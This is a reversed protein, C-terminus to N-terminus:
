TGKELATRLAFNVQIIEQLKVTIDDENSGAGDDVPVSPRICVPPVVISNLILREPRGKTSEMWLLECDEDSIYKFLRQVVLPSLDDQARSLAGELERNCMKAQDFQGLFAPRLEHGARGNYKEHVLKLTQSGMIKRVMGNPELCHPCLSTKKCLTLIKKRLSVRKLVDIRPDRMRNLYSTRANEPLLVRSCSKCINQLIEITHKFYGIHFVPLDLEIYGLHGACSALKEGCTKCNDVKNSIGLRPDLVGHPAPLRSPLEFLDKSYVELESMRMMDQQSFVGFNLHSIKATKDNEIVFEKVLPNRRPPASSVM